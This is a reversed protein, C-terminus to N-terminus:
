GTSLLSILVHSQRLSLKHKDQQKGLIVCQPLFMKYLYQLLKSLSKEQEVDSFRGLAISCINFSQMKEREERLIIGSSGVGERLLVTLKLEIQWHLLGYKQASGPVTFPILFGQLPQYPPPCWSSYYNQVRKRGEWEDYPFQLCGIIYCSVGLDRINNRYTELYVCVCACHLIRSM